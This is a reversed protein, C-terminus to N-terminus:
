FRKVFSLRGVFSTESVEDRWRLGDEGDPVGFIENDFLDPYRYKTWGIQGSFDVSWGYAGYGTGFTFSAKSIDKDRPSPSYLFGLRLPIGSYFLHEVGMHWSFIDELNFDGYFDSSYDSWATYRMGIEFLALLDNRPRFRMGISFSSPYVTEADSWSYTSDGTEPVPLFWLLDSATRAKFEGKMTCKTTGEFGFELRNGAKIRGGMRFRVGSQNSASYTDKTEPEGGAWAIRAVVDYSGFVYDMSFGLSADEALPRAVGFSVAKLTGDSIIYADAIVEDAPQSSSSRDRIQEEYDYNFDYVPSYAVGFSLDWAQPLIGSSFGVALNQYFNKNTAYVNYGLLADFSDYAPFARTEHLFNYQYAFTLDPSDIIGLTAPNLFTSLSNEETLWGVDGMSSGRASGTYVQGGLGLDLFTYGGAGTALALALLIGIPVGRSM